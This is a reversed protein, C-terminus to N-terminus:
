VWGRSRYWALTGRIGEELGIRPEWGLVRRAKDIKFARNKLFFDLRRRYLPPEIGLPRCVTECLVAAAYAPAVPVLVRPPRVEAERAILEVLERVTTFRAGALIFVDGIAAPTEAARLFGRAVDEVHTLHYFVKGRGVMPFRRRTVGRFLKLFRRDGPGYIGVPRLIVAPLGRERQLALVLKEAEVKTLQYVDGPNYPATEDVPPNAVEGHVGCSSCYIFPVGGEALAAEALRRTGEVNVNYYASDPLGADRYVAAIHFVAQTGSVARRLGQADTLDGTVTEVEVDDLLDLRSTARVLVRVHHGALSLMRALHSGMFGTAGTVLVKLSAERV